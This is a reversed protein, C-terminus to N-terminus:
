PPPMRRPSKLLRILAHWAEALGEGTLASCGRLEWNHNNFQELNLRSKIELLSLAGPVEQKNALVVFPVGVMNADNLVKELEALADSLRDPDTSDLVYLLSDTGELYDKWRCRLQDQGGIDWLTLSLQGPIELAEVNFGVTPSTKVLQNSKLKYLLTSKGASDLGMMVVRAGAKWRAKSHATGM